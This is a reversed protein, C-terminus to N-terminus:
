CQLVERLNKIAERGAVEALSALEAASAVQERGAVAVELLMPLNVGSVSEVNARAVAQATVNCPTGGFLDTLLLVPQEGLTALHRALKEGLTDLNEDPALSLTSIAELPGAIMEASEVLARGMEGHSVIVIHIM